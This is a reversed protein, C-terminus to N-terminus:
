IKKLIYFGFPANNGRKQMYDAYLKKLLDKVYQQGHGTDIYAMAPTIKYFEVKSAAVLKATFREGSEKNVVEFERGEVYKNPSWIRLTSFCDCDLKNNWNQSFIITDM